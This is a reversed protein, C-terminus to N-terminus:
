TECSESFNTLFLNEAWFPNFKGTSPSPTKAFAIFTIIFGKSERLIFCFVVAFSKKATLSKKCEVMNINM